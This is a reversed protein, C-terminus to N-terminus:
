TSRLKRLRRSGAAASRNLVGPRQVAPTPMMIPVSSRAPIAGPSESFTTAYLQIPCARFTSILCCNPRPQQDWQSFHNNLRACRASPLEGRERSFRPLRFCRMRAASVTVGHWRRNRTEPDNRRRRPCCNDNDQGIIAGSNCSAIESFTVAQLPNPRAGFTGILCPL